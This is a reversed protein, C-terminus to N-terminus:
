QAKTEFDAEAFAGTGKAADALEAEDGLEFKGAQAFARMHMHMHMHRHRHRHRHRHMHM